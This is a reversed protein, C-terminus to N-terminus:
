NKANILDSLIKYSEEIYFDNQLKKLAEENMLKAFNNVTFIKKDYANNIAKYGTVGTSFLSDISKSFDDFRKKTEKFTNLQLSIGKLQKEMFAISDNLAVVQIFERSASVRSKSKTKLSEVPLETLPTYFLKKGVTDSPFAYKEASETEESIYSLDPLLIDPQIGKKQHTSSTVRYFKQITVNSYGLESSANADPYNLDYNLNLPITGQVTAKGFTSNGVIVARHYDQLVGSLLESASASQGNVMVLLPGDYATGRNMDKILTPKESKNKIVALPGEDIFIGAMNIAESLSGGGNFRLDLILGEIKEAELKTIEKAVDNGCGLPNIATWQDYFSPLSIYGIKKPGDLIYSKVVNEEQETKEKHLVINKILGNAKKVTLEVSKSNSNTAFIQGIELNDAFIFDIVPQKDFSAKLLVDGENIQNSKWANGGPVVHSIEIEGNKNEDTYFGYSMGDKSLMDLFNDKESPSFYTSHPDFRNAICNLFISELYNEFGQPAETIRHIRRKSIIKIKTRMQPENKMLVKTDLNYPNSIESTPELMADLVYYKLVSNWKTRLETDNNTLRLLENDISSFDFSENATFDFPIATLQSILTDAFILKQKYLKLFDNMFGCSNAQLQKGLQNRHVSLLKLDANTLYLGRYDVRKIFDDFIEASVKEDIVIPQFHFKEFIKLLTTAKKCTTLPSQAKASFHFLLFCIWFFSSKNMKYLVGLIISILIIYM